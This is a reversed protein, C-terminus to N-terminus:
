GIIHDAEMISLNIYFIKWIYMYIKTIYAMM